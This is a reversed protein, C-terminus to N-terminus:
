SKEAGRGANFEAVNAQHAAYDATFRTDGPAVTVFYLWDGDAPRIVADLAEDGPNGIPTPPLGKRAYTNYPSASRTDEYTTDVTSRGLAYNLTSDMQLAMGRALRNHVVRAVKAMDEPNDAEAQVISAAIVTQYVSLGHAKAGEVIRAAGFRKAATDVMFRLLGEPTTAGVVPYTAPFLYGEPNGGAAPPLALTTAPATATKRATGEPLGLARDVATYVQGARWGEPVLLARPQEVAPEGTTLLLPVTVAAAAALVAGLLLALRGRRTLRPRRPGRPERPLSPLRSRRRPPAYPSPPRYTM